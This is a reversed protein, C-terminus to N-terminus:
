EPETFLIKNATGCGLWTCSIFDFKSILRNLMSRNKPASYCTPSLRWCHKWCWYIWASHLVHPEKQGVMPINALFGFVSSTHYDSDSPAGVISALQWIVVVPVHRNMSWDLSFCDISYAITRGDSVLSSQYYTVSENHFFTLWFYFM